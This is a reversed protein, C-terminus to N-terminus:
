FLSANKEQSKKQEEQIVLQLYQELMRNFVKRNMEVDVMARHAGSPDIGFHTAVTGLKHNQLHPLLKRAMVLTDIMMNNLPAIDCRALDANLFPVDFMLINHGVLVAGDVFELFKPFLEEAKGGNEALFLNSLGHVNYAGDEVPCTPNILEHYREIVEGNVMKQGALEIVQNGMRHDLGTTEIDFIVFQAGKLTEIM